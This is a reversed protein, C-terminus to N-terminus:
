EDLFAVVRCPSAEGGEIPMPFAGIMCRQGLADEIDGGANEVHTIGQGFPVRHMVFLDEEPFLENVDKGLQEEFADRADPRKFRISTNMPHDGSGCDFGTWALEMEVIWEAFERDGGPHRLFYREEDEEPGGNYYRHYGTHYILIDGKKVEARDTIMSPKIVAWDEMLDSIDVIVGERCLTELPVSRLDKGGSIIHFEGDFHTGSHLPLELMQSVIGHTAHRQFYSLKPSPYGVWGPTHISFTHTLDVLRM